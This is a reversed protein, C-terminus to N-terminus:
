VYAPGRNNYDLHLPATIFLQGESGVIENESIPRFAKVGGM